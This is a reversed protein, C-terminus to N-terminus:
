PSSSAPATAEWGWVEVERGPGSCGGDPHLRGRALPRLEETVLEVGGAAGRRAEVATSALWGLTDGPTAPDAVPACGVEFRVPVTRGVVVRRDGARPVRAPDLETFPSEPLSDRASGAGLLPLARDRFAARAWVRGEERSLVAVLRPGHDEVVRVSGPGLPLVRPRVVVMAAARGAASEGAAREGDGPGSRAGRDPDEGCGAAALAVALVLVLVPRGPRPRGAPLSLTM